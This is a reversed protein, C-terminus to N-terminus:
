PGAPCRVASRCVHGREHHPPPTRSGEFHLRFTLGFSLRDPPIAPPAEILAIFGNRRRTEAADSAKVLSM